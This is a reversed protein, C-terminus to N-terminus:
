MIYFHRSFFNEFFGSATDDKVAGASSYKPVSSVSSKSNTATIAAAMAASVPADVSEKTTREM